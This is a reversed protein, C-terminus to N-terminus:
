RLNGRNHIFLSAGHWSWIFQWKWKRLKGVTEERKCILFISTYQGKRSIDPGWFHTTPVVRARLCFNRAPVSPSGVKKRQMCRWFTISRGHFRYSDWFSAKWSLKLLGNRLHTMILRAAVKITWIYAPSMKLHLKSNQFSMSLFM